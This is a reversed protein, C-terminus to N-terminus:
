TKTPFLAEVLEKLFDGGYKIALAEIKAWDISPLSALKVIDAEAIGRARLALIASSARTSQEMMKEKKRKGSMGLKDGEFMLLVTTGPSPPCPVPFVDIDVIDGASFDEDFADRRGLVDFAFQRYVADENLLDTVVVYLVASSDRVVFANVIWRM